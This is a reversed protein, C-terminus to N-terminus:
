KLLLKSIRDFIKRRTEVHFQTYSVFAQSRWRGWEKLAAEAAPSAETALLSPIGGRFSHGTVKSEEGAVGTRNVVSRLTNNFAARSWCTGNELRFVPQRSEYVGAATAREKLRRLASVPCLGPVPFPFFCILDGGTHEVKPSRLHLTVNNEGFHVDKWCLTRDLDFAMSEESIIESIRLSGFYSILFSTWTLTKEYASWDCENVTKGLLKLMPFSVPKRKKVSITKPVNKVGRLFDKLQPISSFLIPGHGKLQQLKSLSYLYTKISSAKLLRDTDCWSAYKQVVKKSLPFVQEVNESNCFKEFSNKVAHHRDWTAKASGEAVRNQFNRELRGGEQVRGRKGGGNVWDANNRNFKMHLPVPNFHEHGTGALDAARPPPGTFPERTEEVHIRNWPRYVSGERPRHVVAVADELTLNEPSFFRAWLRQMGTHLNEPHSVCHARADRPHTAFITPQPPGSSARGFVTYALPLRALM